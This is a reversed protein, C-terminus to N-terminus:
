YEAIRTTFRFITPFYSHFSCMKNRFRRGLNSNPLWSERALWLPHKWSLTREPLRWTTSEGQSLVCRRARLKNLTKTMFHISEPLRFARGLWLIIRSFRARRLLAELHPWALVCDCSPKRWLVGTGGATQGARKRLNISCPSIQTWFRVAMLTPKNELPDLSPTPSHLSWSDADLEGKGWHLVHQTPKLKTIQTKNNLGATTFCM